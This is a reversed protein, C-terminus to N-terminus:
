APPADPVVDDLSQAKDKLALLAAEAEEPLDVDGLAAELAAIKALIEDKAKTLQEGLSTLQAAVESVKMEIDKQAQNLDSRTVWRWRSWLSPKPKHPNGM